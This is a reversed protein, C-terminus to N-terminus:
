FKYFGLKIGKDNLEKIKGGIKVPMKGSTNGLSDKYYLQGGGSGGIKEITEVWFGNFHIAKSYYHKNLKVKFYKVDEGFKTEFSYYTDEEDLNTDQKWKYVTWVREYGTKEWHFFEETNTAGFCYLVLIYDGDESKVVLNNEILYRLSRYQESDPYLKMKWKPGPNYIGEKKTYNKYKKELFLAHENDNQIQLLINSNNKM